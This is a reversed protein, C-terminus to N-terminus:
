FSEETGDDAGFRNLNQQSQASGEIRSDPDYKEARQLLALGSPLTELIRITGLDDMGLIVLQDVGASSFMPRVNKGSFALRGERVEWDLLEFDTGTFALAGAVTREPYASRIPFDFWVNLDAFPNRDIKRRDEPLLLLILTGDRVDPILTTVQSMADRQMRWEAAAVRRLPETRIAGTAMLSAGFLGVVALAFTRRQALLLVILATAAGITIGAMPYAIMQTRWPAKLMMMSTVGLGAATGLLGFGLALGAAKFSRQQDGRPLSLGTGLLLVGVAIAGSAITVAPPLFDWNGPWKWFFLAHGTQAAFAELYARFEFGSLTSAQYSGYGRGGELLYRNVAQYTFAAASLYLPFSTLVGLEPAPRVILFMLVPAALLWPYAAEYAFVALLTFLGSSLALVAQWARPETRWAGALCVLAVLSWVPTAMQHMFAIKLMLIDGAHAVAAFACLLGLLVEKPFLLVVLTYVLLGRALWLLCFVIEYGLYSGGIGLLKSTLHGLHFPVATLLRLPDGITPELYLFGEFVGRTDSLWPMGSEQWFGTKGFVPGYISVIVALSVVAAVGFGNHPESTM